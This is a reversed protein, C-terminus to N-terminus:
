IDKWIGNSHRCATGKSGEKKGNRVIEIYYKRCPKNKDVVNTESTMMSYKRDFSDWTVIDKTPIMELVQQANSQDKQNMYKAISGGLNNKDFPTGLECQQFPVTYLKGILQFIAKEIIERIALHKPDSIRFGYDIGGGDRFSSKFIRFLVGNFDKVHIDNKLSIALLENDNKLIRGSKSGIIRLDMAVSFIRDTGSFGLDLYKRFMDLGGSQRGIDENYESISGTFIFNSKFATGTNKGQLTIEIEANTKGSLDFQSVDDPSIAIINIANLKSLATLAMDRSAQTLPKGGVGETKGTKDKIKGVSIQYKSYGQGSNEILNGLCRLSESYITNNDQVLGTTRGRGSNTLPKIDCGYSFIAIGLFFVIKNM